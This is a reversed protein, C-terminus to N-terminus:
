EQDLYKDLRDMITDLKKLRETITKRIGTLTALTNQLETREKAEKRTRNAKSWNYTYAWRRVTGDPVGLEHAIDIPRYGADYFSKAKDKTEQPWSPAKGPSHWYRKNWSRITSDPIGLNQAIQKASIGADFLLKAEQILPNDKKSPM